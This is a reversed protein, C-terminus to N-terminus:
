AGSPNTGGPSTSNSLNYLGTSDQRLIDTAQFPPSADGAYDFSNPGGGPGHNAGGPLFGNLGSGELPGMGNMGGAGSICFPGGRGSTYRDGGDNTHGYM